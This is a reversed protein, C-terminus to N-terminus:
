KHAWATTMTLNKKVQNNKIIFHWTYLTYIKTFNYIYSYYFFNNNVTTAGDVIMEAITVKKFMTLINVM